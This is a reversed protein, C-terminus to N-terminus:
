LIGLTVRRCYEAILLADAEHDTVRWDLDPFLRQAAARSVKKEGGTRCKMASQWKVPTVMEYRIRFATLLGICLGFQCGFKFTSSVGQRPMASVRELMATVPLRAVTRYWLALDHNTATHRVMSRYSGDENLAVSAGSM